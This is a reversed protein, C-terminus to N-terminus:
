KLKKSAYLIVFIKVKKIINLFYYFYFVVYYNTNINIDIKSQNRLVDLSKILNYYNNNIFFNKKNNINYYKISKLLNGENKSYRDLESWFNKNIKKKEFFLLKKIKKVSRTSFVCYNILPHKLIYQARAEEESFNHISLIKKLNNKKILNFKLDFKNFDSFFFNNLCGGFARLAIIKRKENKVFMSKDFEREVLSFHLAMNYNLFLKKIFFKSSSKIPTFYVNKILNKKKLNNLCFDLEKINKYNFYEDIQVDFPERIRLTEIFYFIQHFFSIKDKFFIKLIYNSYKKNELNKKLIDISNGYLCSVHLKINKNVAYNVVRLIQNVENRQLNWGLKSTGFIIKTNFQNHM